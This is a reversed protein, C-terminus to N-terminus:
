TTVDLKAFADEISEVWIVGAKKNATVLAQARMFLVATQADNVLDNGNKGIRLIMNRKVWFELCSKDAVLMEDADVASTEIVELGAITAPGEPNIIYNGLTDKKGRNKEVTVPNVWVTTATFEGLSAQVKCAAALDRVNPATYFGALDGADFATAQSAVGYIEGPLTSDNGDGFLFERDAFLMAKTRMENQLRFALQPADEFLEETLPLVASIKALARRKWAVAATDASSNGTGESVYGVNSTCAGEPWHLFSKGEDISGITIGKDLFALGANRPFFDFNVAQSRIDDDTIDGTDVKIEYDKYSKSFIGEKKDSKFETSDLVNLIAQALTKASKKGAGPEQLKRNLENLGADLKAAKDALESKLAAIQSELEKTKVEAGEPAKSKVAALEARLGRLESTLEQLGEM